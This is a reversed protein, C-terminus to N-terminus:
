AARPRGVRHPVFSGDQWRRIVHRRFSLSRMVRRRLKEPFPLPRRLADALRMDARRGLVRHRQRFDDVSYDTNMM